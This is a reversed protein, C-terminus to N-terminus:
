RCKLRGSREIRDMFIRMKSFIFWVVFLGLILVGKVGSVSPVSSVVAQVQQEMHNWHDCQCCISDLWGQIGTPLHKSDTQCFWCSVDGDHSSSIYCAQSVHHRTRHVGATRWNVPLEEDCENFFFSYEKGNFPSCAKYSDVKVNCKVSTQYGPCRSRPIIESIEIFLSNLATLTPSGVSVLFPGNRFVVYWGIDLLLLWTLTAM